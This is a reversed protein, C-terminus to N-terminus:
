RWVHASPSRKGVLWFVRSHRPIVIWLLKEIMKCCIKRHTLPRVLCSAKRNMLLMECQKWRVGPSFGVRSIVFVWLVAKCVKSEHLFFQLLCCAIVWPLIVSLIHSLVDHLLLVVFNSFVCCTNVPYSAIIVLCILLSTRCKRLVRDVLLMGRERMLWMLRLSRSMPKQSTSTTSYQDDGELLIEPCFSLLGQTVDASVLSLSLITEVLRGLFERSRNRSDRVESMGGQQLEEGFECSLLFRETNIKEFGSLEDPDM